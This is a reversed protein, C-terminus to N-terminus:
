RPSPSNEILVERIVRRPQQRGHLAWAPGDELASQRMVPPVLLCDEPLGLPYVTFEGVHEPALTARAPPVPNQESLAMEVSDAVLAHVRVNSLFTGRLNVGVVRDCEAAPLNAVATPSPGGPCIIGACTM